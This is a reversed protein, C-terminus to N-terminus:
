TVAGLRNSVAKEPDAQSQDTNGTQSKQPWIQFKQGKKPQKNKHNKFFFGFCIQSKQGIKVLKIKIDTQCIELHNNWIEPRQKQVCFSLNKQFSKM